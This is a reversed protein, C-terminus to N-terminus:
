GGSLLRYVSDAISRVEVDNRGIWRVLKEDAVGGFRSADQVWLIIRYGRSEALAGIAELQPTVRILCMDGAKVEGIIELAENFIDPKAPGHRTYFTTFNEALASEAHVIDQYLRGMSARIWDPNIGLAGGIEDTLDFLRQRFAVGAVGARASMSTSELLQALRGLLMSLRVDRSSVLGSPDIFYTPRGDAYAYFQGVANEMPDASLFGGVSM